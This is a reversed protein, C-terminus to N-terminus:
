LKIFLTECGAIWPATGRFAALSEGIVITVGEDQRLDM